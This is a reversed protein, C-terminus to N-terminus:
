RLFSYIYYETGGIKKWGAMPQPNQMNEMVVARVGVKEFTKLVSKKTNDDSFWYTNIENSPLEAVIRVGALHAWYSEFGAVYQSIIGVEDGPKVGLAHLEEAIQWQTTKDNSRGVIVAISDGVDNSSFLIIFLGLMAAVGVMFPQSFKQNFDKPVPLEALVGILLLALFPAIYRGEVSVLSYISLGALAPIILVFNHFIKKIFQAFSFNNLWAFVFLLLVVPSFNYIVLSYLGSINRSLTQFQSKWNFFVQMGQNLYAPDFWPAYTGGIPSRFEFIAPRDMVKRTTHTPVGSLADGQWHVFGNVRNVQWDYVLKGSDGITFYGRDRSLPIIFLLSISLFVFFALGIKFIRHWKFRKSLVVSILIIFALPFLITKAFYGFALLVGLLVASSFNEVRNFRLAFAVSLYVCASVLMDPTVLAIRILGLSSVLFICYGVLRVMRFPVKTEQSYSTKELENLLFHFTLFSCLFIIYNLGHAVSLEWSLSPQFIWFVIATLWAYLPSWYASLASHLDGQLYKQAIEIYSVGDPNIANRSAIAHFGGLIISVWLFINFLQRTTLLEVRM